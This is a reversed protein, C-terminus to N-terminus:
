YGSCVVYVDAVEGSQLLNGCQPRMGLEQIMAVAVNPVAFPAIMVLHDDSRVAIGDAYAQGFGPRQFVLRYDGGRLGRVTFRGNKDSITSAEVTTTGAPVAMVQIGALPKGYRDDVVQGSIQAKANSHFWSAAAPTAFAAAACVLAAIGFAIKM